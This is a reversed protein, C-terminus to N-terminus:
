RIQRCEGIGRLMEEADSTKLFGSTGIVFMDAGADRMRRMNTPSVNGDVEIRISEYGRADLMGRLRSIKDLTSEVLKQGAFGPNVTMVLVGWLYPLVEEIMCIPTAPNIAAIPKAGTAAIRELTRQLHRTAEAHVSVADGERIDFWGLRDEPAEIMLHYDLPIDTIRHLAKGYDTGLTFNPVFHGDMVDIHLYEIGGSGFTRLTEGLKLPDVCMMSPSLIPTNM